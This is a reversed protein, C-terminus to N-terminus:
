GVMVVTMNKEGRDNESLMSTLAVLVFRPLLRMNCQM